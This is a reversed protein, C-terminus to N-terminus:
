SKIIEKVTIKVDGSPLSLTTSDDITLGMLAQGLPSNVHTIGEQFNNLNNSIKETCSLFLYSM